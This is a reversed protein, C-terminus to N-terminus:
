ENNEGLNNIWEDILTRVENQNEKFQNSLIETHNMHLINEGGESLIQHILSQEPIGGALIEGHVTRKMEETMREAKNVAVVCPIEKEGIRALLKAEQPGFGEEGDVVLLAIDTKNLVQYSKRVRMAGLDGADDIGPTDIM